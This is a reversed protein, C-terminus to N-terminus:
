RIIIVYRNGENDATFDLIDVNLTLKASLWSTERELIGRKVLGQIAQSRARPLRRIEEDWYPRNYQTTLVEWTEGREPNKWVGDIKTYAALISFQNESIEVLEPKKTKTRMTKRGEPQPTAGTLNDYHFLPAVPM